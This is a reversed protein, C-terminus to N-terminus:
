YILVAKTEKDDAEGLNKTVVNWALFISDTGIGNYNRKEVWNFLGVGKGRGRM